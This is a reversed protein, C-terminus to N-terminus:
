KIKIKEKKLKNKLLPITILLTNNRFTAEAKTIDLGTPLKIMRHFGKFVINTEITDSTKKIKKIKEEAHVDVKEEDLHLNIDKKDIGPLEINITVGKSSQTINSKPRKYNEFFSRNVRDFFRDLNEKYKKVVTIIM